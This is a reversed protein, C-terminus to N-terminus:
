VVREWEAAGGAPNLCIYLGGDMEDFWESGRSFKETEDDDITPTGAGIHRKPVAATIADAIVAAHPNTDNLHTNLATVLNKIIDTIKTM